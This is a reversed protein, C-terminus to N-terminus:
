EEKVWPTNVQHWKVLKSADQTEALFTLARHFEILAPIQTTAARPDM